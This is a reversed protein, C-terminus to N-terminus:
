PESTYPLRPRPSICASTNTTVQSSPHQMSRELAPLSFPTMSSGEQSRGSPFRNFQDFRTETSTLRSLTKRSRIQHPRSRLPHPDFGRTWAHRHPRPSSTHPYRIYRRALSSCLSGGRSRRIRALRNRPFSCSAPRSPPQSSFMRTSFFVDVNRCDKILDATCSTDHATPSGLFSRGNPFPNRAIEFDLLRSIGDKGISAAPNQKRSLPHHLLQRRQRADLSSLAPHVNQAALHSPQDRITIPSQNSHPRGQRNDASSWEYITM